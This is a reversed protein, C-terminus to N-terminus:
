HGEAVHGDVARDDARDHPVSARDERMAVVDELGAVAHDDEGLGRVCRPDDLRKSSAATLTATARMPLRRRSAMSTGAASLRTPVRRLYRPSAATKGIGNAM